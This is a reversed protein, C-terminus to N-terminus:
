FKYYQSTFINRFLTTDPGWLRSLICTQVSLLGKKIRTLFLNIRKVIQVFVTGYGNTPFLSLHILLSPFLHSSLFGDKTLMKSNFAFVAKDVAM